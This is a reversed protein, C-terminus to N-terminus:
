PACRVCRAACWPPGSSAWWCPRDAEAHASVAIPPMSAHVRPFRPSEKVTTPNEVFGNSIYTSNSYFNVRVPANDFTAANGAGAPNRLNRFFSTAWSMGSSRPNDDFGIQVLQPLHAAPLGGPPNQSWAVHDTYNYTGLAQRSVFVDDAGEPPHDSCGAGAGGLLLIGALLRTPGHTWTVMATRTM